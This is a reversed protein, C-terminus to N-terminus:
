TAHWSGSFSESNLYHRKQHGIKEGQVSNGANNNHKTFEKRVYQMWNKMSKQKNSLSASNRLMM